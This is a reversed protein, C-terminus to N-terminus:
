HSENSSILSFKISYLLLILTLWYMNGIIFNTGILFSEFISHFLIYYLLILLLQISKNVWLLVLVYLSYFVLALIFLIGFYYGYLELLFLYSNHAGMAIEGRMLHKNKQNKFNGMGWGFWPGEDIRFIADEWQTVRTGSIDQTEVQDMFRDFIAINSNKLLNSSGILVLFLILVASLIYVNKLIDRSYYLGILILAIMSGRSQSLFMSVILLINFSIFIVRTKILKTNYAQISAILGIASISALTNPNDFIGSFRGEIDYNAFIFGFFVSVSIVYYLHKWFLGLFYNKHKIVLISVFLLGGIKSLFYLLGDITFDDLEYFFFYIIYFFFFFSLQPILRFIKQINLLGIMMGYSLPIYAMLLFIIKPVQIITSLFITAIVWSWLMMKDIIM